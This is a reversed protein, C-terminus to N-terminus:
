KLPCKSSAIRCSVAKATKGLFYASHFCWLGPGKFSWEAAAPCKDCNGAVFTSSTAYARSSVDVFSRFNPSHGLSSPTCSSERGGRTCAVNEVKQAKFYKDYDYEPSELATVKIDLASTNNLTGSADGTDGSYEALQESTSSIPPATGVKELKQTEANQEELFFDIMSM